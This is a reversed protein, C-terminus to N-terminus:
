LRYFIIKQHSWLNAESTYTESYSTDFTIIYRFATYVYSGHKGINIDM